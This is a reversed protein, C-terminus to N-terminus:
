IDIMLALIFYIYFAALLAIFAPCNLQSNLRWASTYAEAAFPPLPWLVMAPRPVSVWFLCHGWMQPGNGKIMDNM